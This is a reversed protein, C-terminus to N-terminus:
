PTVWEAKTASTAKLVKGTSFASMDIEKNEIFYKGAKLKMDGQTGIYIGDGTYTTEILMGKVGSGFNYTNLQPTDTKWAIRAGYNSLTPPLVSGWLLDVDAGLQIDSTVYGGSWTNAANFLAWDEKSLYGDQTSSAKLLTNQKGNFIAWDEKTLVGNQTSTAIRIKVTGDLYLPDTFSYTTGGGGTNALFTAFDEKSLYGDQTSSAKLLTNQKNNFTNWNEKTLVGNQTATATRVNITNGNFFIPEVPSYTVGVGGTGIEEFLAYKKAEGNGIQYALRGDSNMINRYTTTVNSDIETYKYELIVGGDLRNFGIFGERGEPTNNYFYGHYKITAEYEDFDYDKFNGGGVSIWGSDATGYIGRVYIQGDFYNAFPRPIALYTAQDPYESGISMKMVHAQLGANPLGTTTGNVFSTGWPLASVNAYQAHTQFQGFEGFNEWRNVDVNYFGNSINSRRLFQGTTGSSMAIGQSTNGVSILGEFGTTGSVHLKFLPDTTSGIRLGTTNLKMRGLDGATTWTFNTNAFFDLLNSNSAIRPATGFYNFMTINLSDSGAKIVPSQVSATFKKAGGINSQNSVLDVYLGLHTGYSSVLDWSAIKANTVNFAAHNTFIPDLEAGSWQTYTIATTGLTIDAPNNNVWQTSAYTGNLILHGKGRIEASTDNATNRTWNTGDYVYIGNESAATQGNLLISDGTVTTYGGQTKAGTLTQNTVFLLKCTTSVAFGGSLAINFQANTIPSNPNNSPLVYIPQNFTFPANVNVGLGNIGTIQNVGLVNTVNVVPSVFRLENQADVQGFPKGGTGLEKTILLGDQGVSIGSVAEIRGDVQFDSDVGLQKVIDGDGDTISKDYLLNYGLKIKGGLVDVLTQNEKNGLEIGEANTGGFILIGKNSARPNTTDKPLSDIGGDPYIIGHSIGGNSKIPKDYDENGNISESNVGESVDVTKGGNYRDYIKTTYIINSSALEVLVVETSDEQLSYESSLVLFRKSNASLFPTNILNIYGKLIGEFIDNFKATVSLRDILCSELLTRSTTEATRKWSNTVTNTGAIFLTNRFKSISAGINDQYYVAYEDQVKSGTLANNKYEYVRGLFEKDYSNAQGTLILNKFKVKKKTPVVSTLKVGPYIRIKIKDVGNLYQTASNTVFSLDFTVYKDQSGKDIIATVEKEKISGYKDVYYKYSSNISSYLIIAIKVSDIDSDAYAEATFKFSSLGTIDIEASEFYKEGIGESTTFTNDFQIGNSNLIRSVENIAWGGIPTWNIPTNGSFQTLKGNPLINTFVGVEYFASIQQIPIDKRIISNSKVKLGGTHFTVDTNLTKASQFEGLYNYIRGTAVGDLVEIQSVIRWVGQAQAIRLDHTKLIRDLVEYYDLNTTEDKELSYINFDTQALPCDISTKSMSSEFKNYYVELTMNYGIERLCQSIIDKQSQRNTAIEPREDIYKKNKLQNIGDKAQVSIKSIKIDEFEQSSYFPILWGTFEILNNRYIKVQYKKEDDFQLTNIDFNVTARFDLIAYRSYITTFRDDNRDYGIKIGDGVLRLETPLSGVIPTYDKEYLEVKWQVSSLGYATSIYRLGYAM